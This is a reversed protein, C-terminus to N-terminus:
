ILLDLIQRRVSVVGTWSSTSAALFITKLLVMKVQLSQMWILSESLMSLRYMM